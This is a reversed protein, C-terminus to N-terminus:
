KGNLTLLRLRQVSDQVNDLSRWFSPENLANGQSDDNSVTFAVHIAQNQLRTYQVLGAAILHVSNEPSTLAVSGSTRATEPHFPELQSRLATANEAIADLHDHILSRWMQREPTHLTKPETPFRQLWDQLALAHLLVINSREVAEKSFRRILAGQDARPIRRSDFYAQLVPSAPIEANSSTKPLAVVTSIPGSPAHSDRMIEDTTRITIHIAPNNQFPSLAALLRKKHDSDVISNVLLQNRPTRTVTAEQGLDGGEKHIQYRVQIELETSASVTAGAPEARPGTTSRDTLDETSQRAIELPSSSPTPEALEAFEITEPAPLMNLVLVESVPYYDSDKVTLRVESIGELVVPLISRTRLTLFGANKTITDEKDMLSNRWASFGEVSLPDQVDFHNSQLIRDIFASQAQEGGMEQSADLSSITGVRRLVTKGRMRIQVMRPERKAHRAIQQADFAKHLLEAAGVSQPRMISYAVVLALLLSVGSAAVWLPKWRSFVRLPFQFAPTHQRAETCQQLKTRFESWGRPPYPVQESDLFTAFSHITDQM